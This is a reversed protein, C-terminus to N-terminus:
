YTKNKMYILEEKNKDLLETIDNIIENYQKKIMQQNSEVFLDESSRIKIINIEENTLGLVVKDIEEQTYNNFLRYLVKSVYNINKDEAIKKRMKPIITCFFLRKEGQKFVRARNLSLDDGFLEKVIRLERVSLVSLSNMIEKSTCNEFFINIQFRSKCITPLRDYIRYKELEDKPGQSAKYLKQNYKYSSINSTIDENNNLEKKIKLLIDFLQKKEGTKLLRSRNLSINEGFLNKLLILEEKNLSKIVCNIQEKSRNKFFSYIDLKKNYITNFKKLVEEDEKIDKLNELAKKPNDLFEALPKVLDENRLKEIAVKELQRIGESTYGFKKGTELLTKPNNDILGFRYLLVEIERENLDSNKILILIKNKLNDQILNDDIPLENTLVLKELEDESENENNSIKQNLSITDSQLRMLNEVQKVPINMYNALDEYSPEMNNLLKFRNIIKNMKKLKNFYARPIKINRDKEFIAIQIKQKIWITAYTSFKLNRKYDYSEIARMLGISGEQVLDLYDLKETHYKSAIKLVLRMNCEIITKRAEEDGNQIKKFLEIEQNYTLLPKNQIQRIFLKEDNTIKSMNDRIEYDNSIDINNNICYVDISILLLYNDFVSEAKGSQIILKNKKYIIDILNYFFSNNNLLNDIIDANISNIEKYNDNINDIIEIAESYTINDKKLKNLEDNFSNIIDIM